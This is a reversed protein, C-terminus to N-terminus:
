QEGVAAPHERRWQALKWMALRALRDDPCQQDMLRAALPAENFTVEFVEGGEPNNEDFRWFVMHKKKGRTATVVEGFDEITNEGTKWNDFQLVIFVGKYGADWMQGPGEISVLVVSTVVPSKAGDLEGADNVATNQGIAASESISGDCMFYSRKSRGYEDFVDEYGWYGWPTQAPKDVADLWQTKTLRGFRDFTWITHSIGNVFIHPRGENDLIRNDIFNGKDDYSREEIAIGKKRPMLAGTEDYYCIKSVRHSTDYCVESKAFPIGNYFATNSYITSSGLSDTWYIRKQQGNEKVNIHRVIHRGDVGYMDTVISDNTPYEVKEHSVFYENAAPEGKADYYRASTYRGLGDYEYKVRAWGGSLLTSDPNLRIVEIVKHRNNRVYREQSYADNKTYALMPHGKHNIRQMLTQQGQADYEALSGEAGYEKHLVPKGDAGYYLERISRDCHDFTSVYRAVDNEDAILHGNVDRFEREICNGRKDRIYIQSHVGTGTGTPAGTEDFYEDSIKHRQGDYRMKTSAYGYASITTRGYVDFYHEAIQNGGKDYEKKIIAAHSGKEICLSSDADRVEIETCNGSKDYRYNVISYWDDCVTPRGETDFFSTSALLGNPTFTQKYSAYGKCSLPKGDIGYFRQATMNGYNDYDIEVTAYNNNSITPKEETDFYDERIRNGRSDYSLHMHHYLDTSNCPKGDTDYYHSDSIRHYGDYDFRMEAYGFKSICLKDDTGYCKVKTIYGYGDYEWKQWSTGNDTDFCRTGGTGFNEFRIIRDESDYFRTQAHLGGSNYCPKGDIDFSAMWVIRGRDDYEMKRIAFGYSNITPLSDTGLCVDETINGHRDFDMRRMSYNESGYCAKESPDLYRQVMPNGWEDYEVAETAYKDGNYVPEDEINVSTKRICNPAGPEYEQIIGAVGYRDTVPHGDVDLHTTRVIRGLEDLEYANGFIGNEDSIASAALDDDNNSHFTTKIVRGEKDRKLSLRKIKTSTDLGGQQQSSPLYGSAQVLEKGGIDIIGGPTGDYDDRLSFLRLTRGYEDRLAVTAPRGNDYSYHLNGKGYVTEMVNQAVGHSNVAKVDTLRWRYFDKEGLPARRYTLQMSTNRHSRTEDDLPFIGQMVGYVDVADAYYETRTRTYDYVGAGLLLLVACACAWANRIRRQRRKHRQWLTDFSVGFMTAVVDVLAHNRGAAVANIGRIEQERPLDRLVPVFCEEAADSSRPEGKVIFPIIKDSRGEAIFAGVEDNVWESKASEPSCIVILYNSSKLEKELSEKLKTGSLDKKYWFVPRIKRPIGPHEKHLTSPIHYGELHSHLWRAWKEDATCYSIFAFYKHPTNEM